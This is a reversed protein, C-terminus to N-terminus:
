VVYMIVQEKEKRKDVVLGDFPAEIRTYSKIVDAEEEASRAQQISSQMQNQRALLQAIQERAGTTQAEAVQLRARATDLEQSSAAQRQHLKELRGFTTRALGLNADAQRKQARAHQIGKRVEDLAQRASQFAAMAQKYRAQVDRDDIEVLLDGAKVMAGEEVTIRRVHGTVKSSLVTRTKAAITGVAEYYLPIDTSLVRVATMKEEFVFPSKLAEPNQERGCSLLLFVCLGMLGSPALKTYKM